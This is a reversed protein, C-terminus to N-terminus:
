GVVLSHPHSLHSLSHHGYDYWCNRSNIGPLKLLFDQATGSFESRQTSSLQLSDQGVAMAQAPDPQDHGSQLLQASYCVNSNHQM